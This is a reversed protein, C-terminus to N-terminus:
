EVPPLNGSELLQGLEQRTHRAWWIAIWCLYLLAISVQWVIEPIATRSFSETVEAWYLSEGSLLGIQGLTGSWYAEEATGSLLGSSASNLLGIENAASVLNSVLSTTSIFIWALLLGVPIMRWGVELAKRHMPMGPRRALRLNVNSTFREMSPFDAAPADHLIGSLAKLSTLEMACSECESLHAEVNRLQRGYLEGDLYAGLLELVHDSM